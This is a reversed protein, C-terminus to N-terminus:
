TLGKLFVDNGTDSLLIIDDNNCTLKEVSSFIENDDDDIPIINNINNCGRVVLIGPRSVGM